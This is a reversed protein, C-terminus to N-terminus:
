QRTINSVFFIQNVLKEFELSFLSATIRKVAGVARPNAEKHVPEPFHTKNVVIAPQLDVTWKKVDDQMILRKQAINFLRGKSSKVVTRRM